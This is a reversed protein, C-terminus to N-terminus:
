FLIIFVHMNITICGSQCVEVIQETRRVGMRQGAPQDGTEERRQRVRRERPSYPMVFSLTWHLLVIPGSGDLYQARIPQYGSTAVGARKHWISM